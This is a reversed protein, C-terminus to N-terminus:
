IEKNDVEWLDVLSNKKDVKKNYNNIEEKFVSFLLEKIKYNFECIRKDYDFLIETLDMENDLTKLFCKSPATWGGWAKLDKVNLKFKISIGEENMLDYHVNYNILGNHLLRNRFDLVFKSIPDNKLDTEALKEYQVGFDKKHKAIDDKAVCTHDVFTKAGALVNHIKRTYKMWYNIELDNNRPDNLPFYFKPFDDQDLWNVLDHLNDKFIRYSLEVSDFRATVLFGVDSQIDKEIERISKILKESNM